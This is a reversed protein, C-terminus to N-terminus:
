QSIKVVFHNHTRLILNHLIFLLVLLNILVKLTCIQLGRAIDSVSSHNKEKHGGGRMSVGLGGGVYNNQICSLNM